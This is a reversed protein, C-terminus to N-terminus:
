PQQGPLDVRWHENAAGGSLPQVAARAIGWAQLAEEIAPGDSPATM